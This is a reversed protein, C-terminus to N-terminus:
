CKAGATINSNIKKSVFTKTTIVCVKDQAKLHRLMDLGLVVYATRTLAHPPHTAAATAADEIAEEQSETSAGQNTPTLDTMLSGPLLRLHRLSRTQTFM